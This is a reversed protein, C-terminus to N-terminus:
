RKFDSKKAIKYIAPIAYRSEKAVELKVVRKKYESYEYHVRSFGENDICQILRDVCGIAKNFFLTAVLPNGLYNVMYRGASSKSTFPLGKAKYFWKGVPEKIRVNAAQSPSCGILRSLVPINVNPNDLILQQEYANLM